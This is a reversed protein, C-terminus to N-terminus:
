FIVEPSSCLSYQIGKQPFKNLVGRMEELLSLGDSKCSELILVSVKIRNGISWIYNM